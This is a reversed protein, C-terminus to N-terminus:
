AKQKKEKSARKQQEQNRLRYRKSTINIVEFRGSSSQPLSIPSTGDAVPPIRLNYDGFDVVWRRQNFWQQRRLAHRIHIDTQARTLRNVDAFHRILRERLREDRVFCM